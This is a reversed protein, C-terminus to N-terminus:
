KKGGGGGAARAQMEAGKLYVRQARLGMLTELRDAAAAREVNEQTNVIQGATQLGQQQAKFNEGVLQTRFDTLAKTGQNRQDAQQAAALGGRVGSAAQSGRLGALAGQTQQNIAAAGQNALAMNQRSDLGQAQQMAGSILSQTEPSRQARIADLYGQGATNDYITLAAQDAKNLIPKGDPGTVPLALLKDAEARAAQAQKEKELASLVGSWINM